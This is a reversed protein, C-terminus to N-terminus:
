GGASLRAPAEGRVDVRPDWAVLVLSHSAEHPEYTLRIRGDAALKRAYYHAASKELGLARQLEPMSARGARLVHQRIREAATSSLTRPPAAVAPAAARAEALTQLQTSLQAFQNLLAEITATQSMIDPDKMRPPIHLARALAQPVDRLLVHRTQATWALVCTCPM